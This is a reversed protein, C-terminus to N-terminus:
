GPLDQLVVPGDLLPRHEEVTVRVPSTPERLDSRQPQELFGLEQLVHRARLLLELASQFFHPNM